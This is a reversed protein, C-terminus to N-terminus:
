IADLEMWFTSGKDPGDSDVGVKGKHGEEIIKKALYLGLGSGGANVKGGEARSFKQFLKAKIEPTMGMGTDKISLRIKKTAEDKTLIVKITGTKTYKISNDIFNLIVQRIKEMDGKVMYPSKKDTEFTLKLGKKKATVSLDATLDKPAKEFDFDAMIYQMGGQEIKTVNLLDEVTTSLHRSSQYVRDIAEKQKDDMQGFSGDLLMSTYGIIATLPSRLQHSALSLFETKLKDLSQLKENANELKVNSEELRMKSSELDVSLKEIHVRQDSERKLNRYLIISIALSIIITIITLLQDAAGNVFFLQGGMLIVLGAVLYHTGLMKFNFIDLEFVAYIITVLFLPLIFLSYLNYEYVGTISSIYETIGFVSLFAFISSLVIIDAKRIKKDKQKFFSRVIYFLIILLIISEAVLKYNSLFNNNNAECAPQNFGTVSQGTITLYFPTILLLTFMLKIYWKTDREQVFTIIFYLGLVYFIIEIFDLFSWVSYIVHYDTTTWTILDGILWLCFSVVFALFIKSYINFKAKIFIFIALALSLIIPIIHAYSALVVLDKNITTVFLYCSNM